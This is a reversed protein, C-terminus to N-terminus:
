LVFYVSDSFSLPGSTITYNLDVKGKLIDGSSTIVNALLPFASIEIINNGPVLVFGASNAYEAIPKGSVSVNGILTSIPIETPLPNNIALKLKLRLNLVDPVIGALGITLQNLINTKAKLILYALGAIGLILYPNM